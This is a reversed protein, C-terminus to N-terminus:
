DLLDEDDDYSDQPGEVVKDNPDKEEKEGYDAYDFMESQCRSCTLGYNTWTGCRCKHTAM